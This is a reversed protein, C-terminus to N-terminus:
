RRGEQMVILGLLRGEHSRHTLFSRRHSYWLPNELTCMPHRRSVPRPSPIDDPSGQSACLRGLEVDHDLYQTAADIRPASDVVHEHAIGSRELDEMAAAAIDIGAGSFRTTTRCNPFQGAFVSAIGDGVEYCEGCIGPGLTAVIHEPRAGKSRMLAITQPLIGRQLGRRGCHAAAIVGADPDAMFVPLCDAAFMGLAVGAHTTVQGDAETRRGPDAAGSRDCGYPTNREFLRDMDVAVASHVQAVLSLDAGVTKSLALRNSQVAVPDDGGHGGLNCSAFDGESRGGLRTSYIVSIGPALAVPITVPIPVGTGDVHPLPSGDVIVGPSGSEQSLSM